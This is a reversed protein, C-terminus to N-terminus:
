QVCVGAGDGDDVVGGCKMAESCSRKEVRSPSIRLTRPIATPVPFIQRNGRIAALLLPPSPAPAKRTAQSMKKNMQLMGSIMASYASPRFPRIPTTPVKALIAPSRNAQIPAKTPNTAVAMM